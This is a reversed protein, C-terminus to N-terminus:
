KDLHRYANEFLQLGEPTEQPKNEQRTWNPHNTFHNFAEPHPMLGFVNGQANGLGATHLWSGNPNAPYEGTPNGLPDTYSLVNLHAQSVKEGIAQDAVVLKGEGHRIPLYLRDIGNTFVNNSQPNVKLHVWRDEFIGSSNHTLSVSQGGTSLEEFPLLGLKVMLQFGNCIGLMLNGAKSFEALQDKLDGEHNKGYKYRNAGVRGSGLYDGDLFGGIFVLFDYDSLSIEGKLLSLTHRIDVRSAGSAQCAYATEKECNLGLGSLILTGKNKM